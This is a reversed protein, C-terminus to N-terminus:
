DDGIKGREKFAEIIAADKELEDDPDVPVYIEGEGNERIAIKGSLDESRLKEFESKSSDNSGAKRFRWWLIAAVVILGIVFVTKRRSLPWRFSSDNEGLMPTENTPASGGISESGQM